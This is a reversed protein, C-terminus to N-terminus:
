GSDMIQDYLNRPYGLLKIISKQLSSLPTIHREITKGKRVIVLTIHKFALLLRESTPQNTARTAQGPYVGVLTQQTVALQHRVQYEVLALVRAASTLLRVLGIAHDERTLWLPSLSLPRGKLRAFNHEVLYEDRYTQIAQSLALARRLANTAYVRWGLTQELREIAATDSQVHVVYRHHQEVRAPRDGYARISRRQTQRKLQVTLPGEVDYHTLLAQVAEQLPAVETFQRRGRGPHPTLAKLAAQAKALRQHLGRRAAAAFTASRVIVVHETWAIPGTPGIGHQARPLEYGEGLVTQGDTDLITTLRAQGTLAAMIWTAMEAPLTGVQALPMLYCNDTAQLYARTVLASIKCEGIYLLGPTDLVARLRDIM